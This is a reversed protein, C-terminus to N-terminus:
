LESGHRGNDLLPIIIIWRTINNHSNLSVSVFLKTWVSVYSTSLWNSALLETFGTDRWPGAPLQLRESRICFGASPQCPQCSPQMKRQELSTLSDGPSLVGFSSAPPPPQHSPFCNESVYFIAAM